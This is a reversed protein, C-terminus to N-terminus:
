KLAIHSWGSVLEDGQFVRPQLLQVFLIDGSQVHTLTSFESLEPSPDFFSWRQTSSDLHWIRGLADHRILMKFVESPPGSLPPAVIEFVHIAIERGVQVTLVQNGLELQPVLVEAEFSGNKDTVTETRPAVGVGGIEVRSVLTFAPFNEGRVTVYDGHFATAPLTSVSADVATHDVEAKIPFPVESDDALAVATVTHIGGNTASYPVTFASTIRGRADATAVGVIQDGFELNVGDGYHIRVARGAIFGTGGISVESGRGSRDPELTLTPEPIDLFAQAVTNDHGVVRVEVEGDSIDLPVNVTAVFVGNTGVELGSHGPLPHTGIWIESIDPEGGSARTFGSGAITLKQGRAAITPSLVLNETVIEIIATAMPTAGPRLTVKVDTNGIGEKRETDELDACAGREPGSVESGDKRKHDFHDQNYVSVLQDGPPVGTPVKIDLSVTGRSPRPLDRNQYAYDFCNDFEEIDDPLIM